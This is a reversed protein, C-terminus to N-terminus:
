GLLQDLFGTPDDDAEDEEPEVKPAKAKTAKTPAATTDFGSAPSKDGLRAFTLMKGAEKNSEVKEHTVDCEIYNGVLEEPEIEEVDFDNLAVKAFYSFANLAGENIEGDAKLLSFRETHKQGAATVMDLEIKGFDEDYEAKTIKFIHKGEPIVSYGSSKSLKIKGKSM